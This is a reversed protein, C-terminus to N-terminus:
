VPQIYTLDAPIGENASVSVPTDRAEPAQGVSGRPWGMRKRVKFFPLEVNGTFSPKKTQTKLDRLLGRGYSVRRKQCWQRFPFTGSNQATCLTASCRGMLLRVPTIFYTIFSVSAMDDVFGDLPILAVIM